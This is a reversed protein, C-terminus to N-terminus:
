AFQSERQFRAEKDENNYIKVLESLIKETIIGDSLTILARLPMSKVVNRCFVDGIVDSKEFKITVDDDGYVAKKVADALYSNCFDDGGVQQLIEGIKTYRDIRFPQTEAVVRVPVSAIEEMSNKCLCIRYNGPKLVYSGSQTM